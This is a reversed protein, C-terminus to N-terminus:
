LRELKTRQEARLTNRVYNDYHDLDLGEQEEEGIVERVLERIKTEAHALDYDGVFKDEGLGDTDVEAYEKLIEAIKGM